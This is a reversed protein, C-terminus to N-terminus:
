LGNTGLEVRPPGVMNKGYAYYFKQNMADPKCSETRHDIEYTRNSRQMDREIWSFVSKPLAAQTPM